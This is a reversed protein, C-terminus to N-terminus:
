VHPRLGRNKEFLGEEEEEEEKESLSLLEVFLLRKLPKWM